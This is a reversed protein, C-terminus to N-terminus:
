LVGRQKLLRYVMWVASALFGAGFLGLTVAGFRAVGAGQEAVGSRVAAAMGWVLLMMGLAAMVISAGITVNALPTRTDPEEEALGALLEIVMAESPGQASSEEQGNEKEHEPDPAQQPEPEVVKKVEPITVAEPVPEPEQEKEQEPFLGREWPPPEFKKPERREAAKRFDFGQDDM